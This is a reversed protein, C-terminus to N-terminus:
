RWTDDWDDPPTSCREDRHDPPVTRWQEDPGSELAVASISTGPIGPVDISWQEWVVGQDGDTYGCTRGVAAHHDGERSCGQTTLLDLPIEDFACDVSVMGEHPLSRLEACRYGPLMAFPTRLFAARANQSESWPQGTAAVLGADPLLVVAAEDALPREDGSPAVVERLDSCEYRYSTVAAGGDTLCGNWAPDEDLAGLTTGLLDACAPLLNAADADTDTGDSSDAGHARLAMWTAVAAVLVVTLVVGALRRAGRSVGPM